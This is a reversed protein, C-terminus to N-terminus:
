KRGDEGLRETSNAHGDSSGLRNLPPRYQQAAQAAYRGPLLEDLHTIKHDAIQGLIWTLWTQPDVKNLKATELLTFAIAM